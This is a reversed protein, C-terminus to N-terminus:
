QMKWEIVVANVAIDGWSGSGPWAGGIVDVLIYYNNTSNNVTTSLASSEANYFGPSGSSTHTFITYSLGQNVRRKLTISLNVTTSADNGYVTVKTITAGHPLVVPAILSITSGSTTIYTGGSGNSFGTSVEQASKQSVFHGTAVTYIGSSTTQVTGDSFEIADVSATGNVDLETAPANTGIGVNGNGEVVFASNQIDVIDTTGLSGSTIKLVNAGNTGNNTLTMLTGLDLTKEIQLPSTPTTTGIGLYGLNNINVTHAPNGSGDIATVFRVGGTARVAFENAAVSNFDYNNQDAFLFSGDHAPDIKARRGAALSYDGAALNDKGGPVTSHNGSATNSEGGAVTSVIGSSTNSFGGGVASLNGSVTNYSGGSVASLSGSVTNKIGGSIVGFDATITNKQALNTGGGAIVAGQVGNSIVNGPYGGTISPSTTAPSIRLGRQNNVRFDLPMEDTTGIFHTTTDTGANGALSWNNGSPLNTLGSGDGVFATANLTGSNDITVTQTPNGSVDIATVFRVGGTARAAFENAAASNFDMNNNDAFLFSGDHNPDIKARYGSAFSYDGGATNSAGGPIASFAGSADNSSGGAITSHNSTADNYQGGAITALSGTANNYSGGGITSWEASAQNATGGGVTAFGGAGNAGFAPSGGGSITAGFATANNVSAGFVINPAHEDDYIDIAHEIKGVRLNNVRIELPVDDTTGIFDIGEVTGTNGTLSWNNGPPLNTLGSGDGFFATATVTDGNTINFNSMNLAQTATHNGLNDGALNTLGSGDGVFAEATAIGNVELRGNIFTYSANEAYNVRIAYDNNPETSARGDPYPDWSAFNIKEYSSFWLTYKQGSIMSVPLTLPILNWGSSLSYPGFDALETGGNGEGEYIKFSKPSTGGTSAQKIEVSIIDSSSPATFSQWGPFAFGNSTNSTAIELTGSGVGIEMAELSDATFRIVDEDPSVEVQIKTDGDTDELVSPIGTKLETWASGSYFWFSGMENDFVLLGTAPSAIATRQATTMRPILMGKDTSKVDLMASGDPDAGTTNISVQASLGLTTTIAILLTYFKINKM